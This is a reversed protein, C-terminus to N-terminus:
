PSPSGSAEQQLSRHNKHTLREATDSEKHSCLSYGVLSRQGHFERPLRVPTPLWKRRCPIKRVWPDFRRRKHRKGQYAPEESSIGGPFSGLMKQYRFSAKREFFWESGVRVGHIESPTSEWHILSFM